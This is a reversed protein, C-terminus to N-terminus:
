LINLSSYGVNTKTIYFVNVKTSWKYTQLVQPYIPTKDLVPDLSIQGLNGMNAAEKLPQLSAISTELESFIFTM